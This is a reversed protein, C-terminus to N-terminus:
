AQVLPKGRLMAHQLRAMSLTTVAIQEGHFILRRSAPAFMDIYHSILHEGQSAPESNGVIATGFGSLNLTRVLRRMAEGDGRVLAASQAFLPGEDDKLLAYPLRRYPKDFLLHALLWDAQSTTRCLSDGLGARILREPAASLVALD